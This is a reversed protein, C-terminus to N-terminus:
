EVIKGKSRLAHVRVNNTFRGESAIRKLASTRAARGDIATAKQYANATGAAFVISLTALTMKFMARRRTETTQTQKLVTRAASCSAPWDCLAASALLQQNELSSRGPLVPRRRRSTWAGPPGM